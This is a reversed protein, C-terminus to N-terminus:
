TVSTGGTRSPRPWNSRSVWSSMWNAFHLLGADSSVQAASPAVVVPKSTGFDFALQFASQADM